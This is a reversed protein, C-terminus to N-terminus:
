PGIPLPKGEASSPPRVGLVKALTPALDVVEARAKREGASVWKPGWLMLPVNSDYPHPAGHTAMGTRSAFIWYPRQVVQIDASRGPHYTKRVQRLFPADPTLPDLIESRTYAAVLSPEALLLRKAEDVLAPRDVGKSAILANDLLLGHASIARAWAGEGFRKALGANVRAVLESSSQRGADMGKAKLYETAPTFGHDSSFAVLYNDRGVTRDLDRFFAAFLNDLQLLHDHSLRSEAGWAHNVYDHGSLSVALIDTAEDEGLREGAIAARAFDLSLADLFPSRYLEDYFLPGPEALKEGMTRPLGGPVSFWPQNDPVSRAYAMEPLLPKWVAKFFRDAPKAANWAAVWAPHEKMYYTSTAFQGTQKMYMYATGAKGAPLISGRDKGSISIVKSRTDASRLVDGLSEALLNKPSTGDLPVTKHGLYGHATDGTNYVMAGTATDRWDNAIIGTRSPSAGTLFTAHGPATATHAHVHHADTFWAGERFFRNLGDPCLQDRYDVVQRQPLGDVVLLVVLKPRAPVAPAPATACGAAALLSALALAAFARRSLTTKM